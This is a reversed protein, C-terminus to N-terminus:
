DLPVAELAVRITPQRSGTDNGVIATSAIFFSL